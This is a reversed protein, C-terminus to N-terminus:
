QNCMGADLELMVVLVDKWPQPLSTLFVLETDANVTPLATLLM